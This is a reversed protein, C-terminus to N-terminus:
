NAAPKVKDMADALPGGVVPVTDRVRDQIGSVTRQVDPRGWAGAVKNKIDGVVKRGQPTTAFIAGTIAGILLLTKGRM